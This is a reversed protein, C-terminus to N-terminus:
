AKPENVAEQLRRVAAQLKSLDTPTLKGIDAYQFAGDSAWVIIDAIPRKSASALRRAVTLVQNRLGAFDSASAAGNRSSANDRRGENNGPTQSGPKAGRVASAQQELRDVLQRLVRTDPIDDTLASALKLERCLAAHAERGVREVAAELRQIGRDANKLREVIAKLKGVDGVQAPDDVGAVGVLVSRFIDRGVRTSLAQIDKLAEDRGNGAAAGNGHGHGRGNSVPGSGNHGNGNKGSAEANGSREGDMAQPLAWEPLDPFWRPRKFEDLDVWAQPVDYLYRGLGFCVCARKFAQADGGTVANEDDAWHEGTGSHTGIGFITVRCCVMVKACVLGKGNGGKREINGVVEFSYDRTWGAPTFLQNLRDLYARPDAYAALLGRQGNRGPATATVVWEVVSADFPEVLQELLRQAEDRSFAVPSVLAPNAASAPPSSLQSSTQNKMM